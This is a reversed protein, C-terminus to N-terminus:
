SVEKANQERLSTEKSNKQYISRLGKMTLMPDVVDISSSSESIIRALGGTAVVKANTGTEDRMRRVLGDVLEAYGYTLGSSINSVTNRGIVTEPTSIDVRPLKACHEFLANASLQIGPVIIGGKYEAQASIYDFTTATGFDIIILPGEHEDLAGVANVLRDAGLEKPNENHLKIGTKIGPEVMLPEIGFIKRSMGLLATNAQPVVSSICCGDVDSTDINDQQLLMTLMSRLEDSTRYNETAIRWHARLEQGDYLGIVTNSNGVDVVLLM